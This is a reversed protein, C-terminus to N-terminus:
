DSFNDGIIIQNDHNERKLLWLLFFILVISIAVWIYSDSTTGITEVKNSILDKSVLYWAIVAAGNNVFHAIIPLWM